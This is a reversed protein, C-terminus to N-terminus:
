RAGYLKIATRSRWHLLHRSRGNTAKRGRSVRIKDALYERYHQAVALGQKTGGFGFAKSRYEEGKSFRRTSYDLDDM